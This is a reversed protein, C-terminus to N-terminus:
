QWLFHWKRYSCLALASIVNIDVIFKNWFWQLTENNLQWNWCAFHVFQNYASFLHINHNGLYNLSIIRWFNHLVCSFSYQLTKLKKWFPQQGKEHSFAIQWQMEWFYCYSFNFVLKSLLFCFTLERIEMCLPETSVWPM